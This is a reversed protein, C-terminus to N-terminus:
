AHNIVKLSLINKIDIKSLQYHKPDNGNDDMVKQRKDLNSIKHVQESNYNDATDLAITVINKPAYRLRSIGRSHAIWVAANTDPLTYSLGDDFNVIYGLQELISKIESYFKDALPKIKPNDIYKPNGKIIVALPKKNILNKIDQSVLKNM